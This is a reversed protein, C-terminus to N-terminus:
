SCFRLFSEYRSYLKLRNTEKEERLILVGFCDWRLIYVGLSTEGLVSGKNKNVYLVFKITTVRIRKSHKPRLHILLGDQHPPLRKLRSTPHPPRDM